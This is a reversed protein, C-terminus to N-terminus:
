FSFKVLLMYNRGPMARYLIATYDEDLINNVKFQIDCKYKNLSFRKGVSVNNINYYPLEHRSDENISTTFRQSVYTFIYSAYYNKYDFNVMANAKHVPTYILQKDISEDLYVTGSENTTRTFAYNANLNVKYNSKSYSTSLLFELGRAYVDKINEVRYGRSGGPMWLIWNNIRSLYGTLSTRLNLPSNNKILYEVSLDGTYGEEHKLDSNGNPIFYLDNLSPFHYNRTFSSKLTYSNNKFPSLEFGVSPLLPSPKNEIINERVLGYISLKKHLMHHLSISAGFDNRETNYGNKYTKELSEVSHYDNNILTKIETKDSIKFNYKHKLYLSQCNNDSDLIPNDRENETYFNNLTSNNYGVFIISKSYEWYKSWKGVIRIDNDKQNEIRDHGEYSTLYPLNRNASQIWSTLTFVNNKNRYHIEGIAGQKYYDANIQTQDSFSGDDKNFFIFDNEAQEHFIRLKTQLKKSGGGVTIFSQYTDYSGIGQVANGYIKKDWQPKSSLHVSGGLAGSGEQLSSGGHYLEVEDIFYIPILSFDVQGIMPNNISIGNWEVNTHSASTGRFSVTALSGQGYSKIFVPTHNSLLEALSSNLNEKIVMSDVETKIIGKETLAKKSIIEVSPLVTASDPLEQAEISTGLLLILSLISLTKLM